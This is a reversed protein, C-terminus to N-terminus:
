RKSKTSAPTPLTGHLLVDVLGRIFTPTALPLVQSGSFWIQEMAHHVLSGLFVRGLIESDVRRLRGHEAEAEFYSSLRKLSELQAPHPRKMRERLDDLKWNGARAMMTAVMFFPMIAKMEDIVGSGIEFLHESLDGKGVRDALRELAPPVRTQRDLVALYVGEKTKYRHFLVSESVGAQRAIEATTTGVGLELFVAKAVDLLQDDTITLPRGRSNM